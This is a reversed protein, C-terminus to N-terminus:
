IIYTLWSEYKTNKGHVIDFYRQQIETTLTGRSGCGIIRGDVERIPTVEAATGTFFVEDACYVEDRTIHKETVTLNMDAAIAMVTRRTIGDLAADLAPTYLKGDNVIFINEGSGEAVFGNSDLMIAEDYGNRTAETNAMISNMYNGNAKAKIMTINPHHRTFSSIQVRIGKQMGEEGLYAGWPWAAVIVQVDNQDPAVGLKNSGYFAMPRFYCSALKNAKVVEIHAQNIEEMTFPLHMGTIKASNFLRKTHDQLRFIATGNQTKYARVGEFVGMGYHLTHTLVHTQANRWEVLNGNFWIFGDQDAMSM